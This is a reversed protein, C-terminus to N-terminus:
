TINAIPLGSRRTSRMSLITPQNRFCRPEAASSQARQIAIRRKGIPARGGQAEAHAHKYVAAEDLPDSRAVRLLIGAVRFHDVGAAVM